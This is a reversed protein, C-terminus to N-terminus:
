RTLWRVSERADPIELTFTAHPCLAEARKLFAEMDITGDTLNRHSDKDGSNNHIHFHSLYSSCTELWTELPVRSYANVHGIDLCMRFRPDNVGRLIEAMMEPEEELVNELCITIGEPCSSLFDRWFLISQETYWCPYYLWPNYGGHFVVKGAGYREALMLAERFRDAALARAKPDIACPFLENFPGHLIRRRIGRVAEQVAADTQAFANDLNWATCFHAVEIGMGAQLALEHANDDITSLFFDM